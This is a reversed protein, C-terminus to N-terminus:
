MGEFRPAVEPELLHMELDAPLDEQYNCWSCEAIRTDVQAVLKEQCHPCRRDLTVARFPRDAPNNM